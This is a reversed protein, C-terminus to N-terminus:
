FINTYTKQDNITYKLETTKESMSANAINLSGLVLNTILSIGAAVCSGIALIATATIAGAILKQKEDTNLRTM